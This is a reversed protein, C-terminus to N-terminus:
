RRPAKSRATPAPFTSASVGDPGHGGLLAMLKDDAFLEEPLGFAVITGDVLAIKEATRSIATASHTVMIAALYDDHAIEHLLEYLEGRGKADVGAAPEDLMLVEPDTVLARALFARQTEGGSLGHLPRDILADGRVRALVQKVKEREEATVRVPWRGRLNAVILEATTAPFSRDFSKLQPLYGVRGPQTGPEGGLVRITGASPEILGLLSKLLTSKGAGNPGLLCLFEGRVVHFSVDRLIEREGFTFGVGEVEVVTEGSDHVRRPRAKM